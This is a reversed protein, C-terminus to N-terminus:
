SRFGDIFDFKEPWDGNPDWVHLLFLIVKREPNRCGSLSTALRNANWPNAGAKHLNFQDVLRQWQNELDADM